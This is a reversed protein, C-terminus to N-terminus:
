KYNMIIPFVITESAPLPWSVVAPTVVPGTGQERLTVAQGQWIVRPSTKEHIVHSTPRHARPLGRSTIIALNQPKWTLPILLFASYFRSISVSCLSCTCRLSLCSPPTSHLSLTSPRAPPGAIGNERHAASENGSRKIKMSQFDM